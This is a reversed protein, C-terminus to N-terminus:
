TTLVWNVSTTFVNNGGQTKQVFFNDKHKCNFLALQVCVSYGILSIGM